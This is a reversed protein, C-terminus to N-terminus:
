LISFTILPGFICVSDEMAIKEKSYKYLKTLSGIQFKNLEIRDAYTRQEPTLIEVRLYANLQLVQRLILPERSMDSLKFFPVKPFPYNPM